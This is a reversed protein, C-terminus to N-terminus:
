NEEINICSFKFHLKEIKQEPRREPNNLNVSHLTQVVVDADVVLCVDVKSNLYKGGFM